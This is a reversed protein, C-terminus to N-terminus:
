LPTWGQGQHGYGFREPHLMEALIELSTLLRPGPRNFYQNGDVLFVKGTKVAALDEWGPLGRLAQMDQRTQEISFGCPIVILVDPDAAKLSDWQMWPLHKGAEGFLNEGGAMEVLNPMWNGGAMLPEMWEITAVRPKPLDACQDAIAEMGAQIEEVLQVGRAHAGLTEAVKHIDAWIDDLSNPELSVIRPQSSVMQCVAEAVDELSAACVQCQSQTVIVDPKLADLLTADVRYISVGEQLLAMVREDIAYSTGDPEYKPSTIVPLSSVGAPYDCEHSRGVICEKFGLAAIIETSSPILSVIRM